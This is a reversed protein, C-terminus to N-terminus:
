AARRQMVLTTIVVAFGGLLLVLSLRHDAKQGAYLDITTPSTLRGVGGSANSNEQRYRLVAGLMLLAAVALAGILRRNRV